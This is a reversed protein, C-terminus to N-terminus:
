FGNHVSDSKSSFNWDSVKDGKFTVTLSKSQTDSGSSFLNIIPVYTLATMDSKYSSYLWQEENSGTSTERGPKGFSALVENKTTKGNKIKTSVSQKTENSISHNGATSSCGAIGFILFSFIIKNM